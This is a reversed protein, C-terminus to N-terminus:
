SEDGDKAGFERHMKVYTRGLRKHGAVLGDGFVFQNHIDFLELMTNKASPSAAEFMQRIAVEANEGAENWEEKTQTAM